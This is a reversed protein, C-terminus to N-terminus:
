LAARFYGPLNPRTEVLIELVARCDAASLAHWAPSRDQGTLVEFLRKYLPDKAASPLSDFAESYILFSCPYRFLRRELDM